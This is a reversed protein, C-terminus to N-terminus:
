KEIIMKFVEKEGSDRIISVLFIGDRYESLNIDIKDSFTEDTFINRGLVDHIMIACHENNNPMYLIAQGNSPNPAIYATSSMENERCTVSISQYKIAQSGCQNYATVRISGSVTGWNITATSTGQGSVISCGTPVGWAYSVNPEAAVSYVLNTQNACVTTSGNIKVPKLPLTTIGSLCKPLSSGCANNATVCITASSINSVPWLVQVAKTGQGSTVTGGSSATWAYTTAGAVATISYASTAGCVNTVPGTITGPTAATSNIASSVTNSTVCANSASVSLTGSTFGAAFQVKISNTGQGTTITANTPATWVYNTANAVSTISYTKITGPCVGNKTGTIVGVTGITSNSQLSVNITSPLTSQCSNSAVVSITGSSYGSLFRILVSNTGQGSIVSTNAPVTWAYYTANSVLPLSYVYDNASCIASNGVIAGITGLAGAASTIVYSATNSFGNCGTVTLTYTGAALSPRDAATSGDNWLYSYPEVGNSVSIYINGNTVGACTANQTSDLAIIPNNTPMTVTFTKNSVFGNCGTVTVTYNGAVLSQRDETTAGDSWLYSYPNLGGSVTIFIKGNAQLGSCTTNIISDTSIVPSNISYGMVFTKTAVVGNCGTVTVTYNGISLSTRDETTVGDNWLYSYPAIGNSISIYIKGSSTGTSCTLNILSDTTIVPVNSVLNLTFARTATSGNCGTVTVTYNGPPLNTRDEITSGDSWLYTYPAIGSSVSIAIQGTATGVCNINQTSDTTIVPTGAVLGIVFSKTSFNGDAGTVTVTYTGASINIRDETIAGDNWLYSYPAVSGTVSIYIKGTASGACNVNSTSDTTIIPNSFSSGLPNAATAITWPTFDGVPGAPTAIPLTFAPVTPWDWSVVRV